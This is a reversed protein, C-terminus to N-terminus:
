FVGLKAFCILNVVVIGVAAAAVFAKLTTRTLDPEAPSPIPSM